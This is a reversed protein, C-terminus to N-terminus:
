FRATFKWGPFIKAAIEALLPGTGRMRRAAAVFAIQNAIRQEEALALTAEAVAQTSRVQAITPEEWGANDLFRLHTKANAIHDTM